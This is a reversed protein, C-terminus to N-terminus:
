FCYVYDIFLDVLYNLKKYYANKSWNELYWSSDSDVTIFDNIFIKKYDESLSSIFFDLLGVNKTDKMNNQIRKLKQNLCFDIIFARKRQLSMSKLNKIKNELM